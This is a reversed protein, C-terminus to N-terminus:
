KESSEFYAKSGQVDPKITDSGPNWGAFIVHKSNRSDNVSIRSVFINPNSLFGFKFSCFFVEQIGVQLFSM